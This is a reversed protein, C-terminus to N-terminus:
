AARRAGRWAAAALAVAITLLTGLPVYWPFALRGLPALAPWAAALRAALVVGLMLVLACAAGAIVDRGDLPRRLAALVLTGLLAGYTVSAISLAVVVVPADQASGLAHFGLAGAILLLGWLLSFLRGVRLLHAPDSRGSWGAYLDSTMSSALASISSSITSMAAALIAAVVLGALGPPMQEVVFRPFIRDSARRNM